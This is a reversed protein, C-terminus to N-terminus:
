ALVLGPLGADDEERQVEAATCFATRLSDSIVKRENYNISRGIRVSVLSQIQGFKSYGTDKIIRDVDSRSIASEQDKDQDRKSDHISMIEEGDETM